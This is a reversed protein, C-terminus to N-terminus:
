PGELGDVRQDNVDDIRITFNFHDGRSISVHELLWQDDCENILDRLEDLQEPTIM